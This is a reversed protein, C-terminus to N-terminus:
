RSTPTSTVASDPTPNATWTIKLVEGPAGLKGISKGNYIVSVDGANGAWLMLREKAIWTKKDGTNQIGSFVITGDAEVQTWVRGSFQAEIKIERPVTPTPVPPPTPMPTPTAPQAVPAAPPTAAPPTLTTAPQAAALTPATPSPPLPTPIYRASDPPRAEALGAGAVFAAYQQYLYGGLALLLCAIIAPVLFGPLRETRYRISPSEPRVAAQAPVVAARQYADLYPAPDVGLFRAYTQVLGQAFVASPLRDLAGEEIAEILRPRILSAAASQAVTLRRRIRERRLAEGEARLAAGPDGSRDM